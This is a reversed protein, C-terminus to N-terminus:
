ALLAEVGVGTVGSLFVADRDWGWVLWTGYGGAGDSGEMAWPQYGAAAHAEIRDVGVQFDDVRDYGGEWANFVFVDAGEGGRLM